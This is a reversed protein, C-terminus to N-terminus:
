AFVKTWVVALITVNRSYVNINPRSGLKQQKTVLGFLM